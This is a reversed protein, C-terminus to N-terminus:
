IGDRPRRRNSAARQAIVKRIHLIVVVLQFEDDLVSLHELVHQLDFSQHSYAEASFTSTPATRNEPSCHFRNLFIYSYPTVVITALYKFGSTAIIM